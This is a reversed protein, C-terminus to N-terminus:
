YEVYYGITGDFEDKFSSNDEFVVETVYEYVSGDSEDDKERVINISKVKKNSIKKMRATTTPDFKYLYNDDDVLFEISDEAVYKIVAKVKLSLSGNNFTRDSKLTQFSNYKTDFDTFENGSNLNIVKNDNTKGYYEFVADCTAVHGYIKNISTYSKNELQTVDNHFDFNSISNLGYILFIKNGSFAYIDIEGACDYVDYFVKDINKLEITEKNDDYGTEFSLTGNTYKYLIEDYVLKTFDESTKLQELMELEPKSGDLEKSMDIDNMNITITKGIDSKYEKEVDNYTLDNRENIKYCGNSSSYFEDKTVKKMKIKEFTITKDKINLTIPNSYNTPYGTGTKYTTKLEVDNNKISYKKGAYGHKGSVTVSEIRFGNKPDLILYAYDKCNESSDQPTAFGIYYQVGNKKSDDDKNGILMGLVVGVAIILGGIIALLVLGNGSKKNNEVVGNNVTENIDASINNEPTVNNINNDM